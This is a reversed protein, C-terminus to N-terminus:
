WARRATCRSKLDRDFVFLNERQSARRLVELERQLAAAEGAPRSCGPSPDAAAEALRRAEIAAPEIRNDLSANIREADARCAAYSTYAIWIMAVVAPFAAAPVGSVFWRKM